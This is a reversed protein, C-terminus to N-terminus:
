HRLTMHCLLLLMIVIPSMRCTSYFVFFWRCSKVVVCLMCSICPKARAKRNSCEAAIHQDVKASCWLFIRGPEFHYIHPIAIGQVQVLYSLVFWFLLCMIEVFSYSM